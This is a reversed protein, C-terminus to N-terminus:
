RGRCALSSLSTPLNQRCQWESRCHEQWHTGCSRCVSPKRSPGPCITHQFLQIDPWIALHWTLEPRTGHKRSRALSRRQLRYGQPDRVGSRGTPALGPRVCFLLFATFPGGSFSCRVADHRYFSRSTAVITFLIAPNGHLSGADYVQAGLRHHLIEAQDLCYCQLAPLSGLHHCPELLAWLDLKWISFLEIAVLQLYSVLGFFPCSGHRPLVQPRM